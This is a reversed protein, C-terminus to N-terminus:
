SDPDDFEEDEVEDVWKEVRGQGGEAKQKTRARKESAEARECKDRIVHLPVMRGTVNYFNAQMELWKSRVYKSEVAALIDCDRQSFYADAQPRLTPPYLQNQVNKIYYRKQRRREQDDYGYSYDEEEEEEDGSSKSSEASPEEGSLIDKNTKSAKSKAAKTETAVKTNRQGKHWKTETDKRKNEEKEKGKPSMKAQIKNEKGNNSSNQKNEEPVPTSADAKAAGQIIQNKSIVKWRAQVDKKSKKLAKCIEAWTVSGREDHKMGRLIADESMTWNRDSSVTASDTASSEEPPQTPSDDISTTAEASATTTQMFSDTNDTTTSKASDANNTITKETASTDTKNINLGKKKKAPKTQTYAESSSDASSKGSMEGSEGNHSAEESTQEAKKAFKQKRGAKSHKIKNAKKECQISEDETATSGSPDSTTAGGGSSPKNQSESADGSSADLVSSSEAQSESVDQSTHEEPDSSEGLATTRRPVIPDCGMFMSALSVHFNEPSPQPSRRQKKKSILESKTAMKSPQSPLTPRAAIQM